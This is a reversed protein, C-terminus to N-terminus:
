LQCKDMVSILAKVENPSSFPIYIKVKKSTTQDEIECTSIVKDKGNQKLYNTELGNRATGAYVIDESRWQGFFSPSVPLAEMCTKLRLNQIHMTNFSTSISKLWSKFALLNKPSKLIIAFAGDQCPVNIIYKNDCAESAIIQSVTLDKNTCQSHWTGVSTGINVQANAYLCATLLFATLIKRM